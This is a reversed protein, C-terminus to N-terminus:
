EGTEVRHEPDRIWESFSGAYLRSGHLGAVEMALLNHCATVGSGCAHVVRAPAEDNLAARFRAALEAPPRFMLDSDLNNKFPLNVAGPIHGAVPDVPEQEGRYRSRDRADVLRGEREGGVLAEVDATRLWLDHDVRAQFRGAEPHPIRQDLPRGEAQWRSLGGDLVAANRHGLWRALWWLRAAFAGGRDDYAVIQSHPEVGWGALRAALLDPDPLPHRGTQPGTPGSLDRELHAYRAGPIHASEYEHEGADPAALDFRCDFVIWDPDDLREALQRTTVLTDASM